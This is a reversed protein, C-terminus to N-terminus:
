ARDGPGRRSTSSIGANERLRVKGGLRRRTMTGPISNCVVVFQGRSTVGTQEVVLGFEAAFTKFESLTRSKGGILVMEISLASPQDDPTVGGIIAIRGNPRSAEACRNLILRTERDPWDNLISKLVYLDAGPPLPDFFSQGVARARDGLEEVRFALTAREATVPLDVLIGSIGPHIRLIEILLSGTGGGVDVITHISSWDGDPLIDPSPIGHGGPGILADFDTKVAPHANLDDWFPVGFHDSYGSEGTRVLTLLTGWAHAMRGGFSDLNFGLLAGPDLLPRAADTLAFTGLEPELFLGRRVLLRLTCGLMYQDSSTARALDDLATVGSEIQSAIGLTAVVHIAWPTSLDSLDWINGPKSDSM